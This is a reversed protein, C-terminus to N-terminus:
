IQRRTIARCAMWLAFIAYITGVPVAWTLTNTMVEGAINIPDQGLHDSSLATIVGAIAGIIGSGMMVAVTAVLGHLTRSTRSAWVAWLCTAAEGVVSVLGVLGLRWLNGDSMMGMTMEGSLAKLSLAQYNMEDYYIFCLLDIPLFVILPTIIFTYGLVWICKELGLAPLTAFFEAGRHKAFVLPGFAVLYSACGLVLVDLEDGQGLGLWHALYFLLVAVLPYAILKRRITPMFYRGVMAVRRWSTRDTHSLTETLTNM